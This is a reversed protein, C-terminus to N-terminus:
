GRSRTGVRLDAVGVGTGVRRSHVPGDSAVGHFTGVEVRGGERRGPAVPVGPVAPVGSVAEAGTWTLPRGVETVGALGQEGM